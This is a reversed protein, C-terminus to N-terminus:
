VSAAADSHFPPVGQPEMAPFVVLLNVNSSKILEVVAPGAGARKSGVIVVDYVTERMSELLEKVPDGSVLSRINHHSEFEFPQTTFLDIKVDANMKLVLEFAAHEHELHAYLFAAKHVPASGALKSVYVGLQTRIDRLSAQIIRGTPSGAGVFQDISLDIISSVNRKLEHPGGALAFPEDVLANVGIMIMECSYNEATQVVDETLHISNLVKTKVTIGHRTGAKKLAHLEGKRAQDKFFPVDHKLKNSLHFFIVPPDSM